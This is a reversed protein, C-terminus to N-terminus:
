HHSWHSRSSYLPQWLPKIDLSLCLGQSRSTAVGGWFLVDPIPFHRDHLSDLIERSSRANAVGFGLYFSGILIEACRLIWTAIM